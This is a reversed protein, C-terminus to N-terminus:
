AFCVAREVVVNFLVVFIHSLRNEVGSGRGKEVVFFFQALRIYVAGVKCQTYLLHATGQYVCPSGTASGSEPGPIRSKEKGILVLLVKKNENELL